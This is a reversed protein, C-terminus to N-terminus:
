GIDKGGRRGRKKPTLAVGEVRGQNGGQSRGETKVSQRAENKRRAEDVAEEKKAIFAVGQKGGQKDGQKGGGKSVANAEKGKPPMYVVKVSCACEKGTKLNVDEDYEVKCGKLEVTQLDIDGALSNM